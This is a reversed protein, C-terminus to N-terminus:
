FIGRLYTPISIVKKLIWKKCIIQTINEGLPLRTLQLHIINIEYMYCMKM